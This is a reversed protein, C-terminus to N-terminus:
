KITIKSTKKGRKCIYVGSTPRSVKMGSLSFYETKEASQDEDAVQSIGTSVDGWAGFTVRSDDEWSGYYDSGEQLKYTSHVYTAPYGTAPDNEVVGKEWSNIITHGYYTQNQAELLNGYDDYTNLVQNISQVPYAGGATLDQDFVTKSYNGKAGFDKYSTVSKTPFLSLYTYEYTMVYDYDKEPYEVTMTIGSQTTMDVQASTIRNNGSMIEDVYAIQGDTQQWKCDAYAENAALEIPDSASKQTAVSQVLTLPKGDTGYTTELLQAELWGNNYWTFSHVATINGAADREIVQKYSDESMTKTGDSAIDYAEQSVVVDPRVDDYAVEATYVLQMDDPSFGGKVDAKLLRGTDDYTYEALSYTYYQTQTLDLNEVLERLTRGERDYTYTYKAYDKWVNGDWSAKIAYGPKWVSSNGAEMPKLAPLPSLRKEPAKRVKTLAAPLKKLFPNDVYHDQASAMWPCAVAMMMVTVFNRM